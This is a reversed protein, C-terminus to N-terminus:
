EIWDQCEIDSMQTSPMKVLKSQLPILRFEASSWVRTRKKISVLSSAFDAQFARLPITKEQPDIWQTNRGYLFWANVVSSALILYTM